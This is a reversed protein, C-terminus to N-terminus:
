TGEERAGGRTRMCWGYFEDFVKGPAYLKGWVLDIGKQEAARVAKRASRDVEDADMQADDRLIYPTAAEKSMGADRLTLAWQMALHANTKCDVELSQACAPAVIFLLVILSARM